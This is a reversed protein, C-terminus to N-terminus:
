QGNLLEDAYYMYGTVFSAPNFRNFIGRWVFLFVGVHNHFDWCYFM